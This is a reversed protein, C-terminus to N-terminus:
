PSPVQGPVRALRSLRLDSVSLSPASASVAIGAGSTWNGGWRRPSTCGTVQAGQVGNVYVKMVENLVTVAVSVWVDAAFAATATASKFVAGAAAQDHSFRAQVAGSTVLVQIFQEYGDFMSFALENSVSAWPASSKVFFENTGQDAAWLGTSPLYVYGNNTTTARLGDRYKGPVIECRSGGRWPPRDAVLGSVENGGVMGGDRPDLLAQEVQLDMLYLTDPEAFQQATPDWAVYRAAPAAVTISM